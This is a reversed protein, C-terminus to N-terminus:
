RSLPTPPEAKPGVNSFTWRQRPDAHSVSLPFVFRRLMAESPAALLSMLFFPILHLLVVIHAMFCNFAIHNVFRNHKPCIYIALYGFLWCRGQTSGWFFSSINNKRWGAAAHQMFVCLLLSWTCELASVQWKLAQSCKPGCCLLLRTPESNLSLDVGCGNKSLCTVSPQHAGSWIHKNVVCVCRNINLM